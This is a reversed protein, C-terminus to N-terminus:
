SSPMAEHGWPASGSTSKAPKAQARIDRWRERAAEERVSDVGPAATLDAASKIAAFRQRARDLQGLIRDKAEDSLPTDSRGILEALVPVLPAYKSALRDLRPGTTHILGVGNDTFDSAKIVRAWPSAELSAAVHERYQEHRDRGPEHPPNTVAAM